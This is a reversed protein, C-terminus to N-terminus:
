RIGKKKLWAAHLAATRQDQDAVDRLAEPRSAVEATIVDAYRPEQSYDYGDLIRLALAVAAESYSKWVRAGLAASARHPTGFYGPWGDAQALKVLDAFNQGIQPRAQQYAPSVLDPRLFLNVATEEMGAHVTFGEAAAEEASRGAFRAFVSMFGALHVMHGRYTDRFFEAAQDLALNHPPAGHLHVVFIWRFGQEGLMTALDMFVARLTAMRLTYSGPFFTKQGIVNAGHSGLPIVPFVLAKWGPRAVIANALQQTLRENMFGDSYSPLYPGHEELIGGPLIVATKDRDLARIEDTNMERVHYIQAGACPAAAGMLAALCGAVIAAHRFPPIRM